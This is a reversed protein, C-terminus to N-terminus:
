LPLAETEYLGPVQQELLDSLVGVVDESGTVELGNNVLAGVNGVPGFEFDAGHGRAYETLLILAQSYPIVGNARFRRTVEAM